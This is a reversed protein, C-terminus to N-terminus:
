QKTWKSVRSGRNTITMVIYLGEALGSTDMQIKGTASTAALTTRGMRDFVQVQISGTADTEINLLETGPNPFVRM